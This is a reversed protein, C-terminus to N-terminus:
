GAHVEVMLVPSRDPLKVDDQPLLGHAVFGDRIQKQMGIRRPVALRVLIVVVIAASVSPLRGVMRGYPHSETLRVVGPTVIAMKRQGPSVRITSNNQGADIGPTLWPDQPRSYNLPM